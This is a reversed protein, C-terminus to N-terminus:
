ARQEERLVDAGTAEMDEDDSDLDRMVDKNRDRGMLQWIESRMSEQLGYDGGRRGRRGDRSDDSGSDSEETSSPQRRRAKPLASSSSHRQELKPRKPASREDLDPKRKPAAASLATSSGPRVASATSTGAVSKGNSSNTRSPGNPRAPASGAAPSDGLRKRRMDAEIEEITRTDRKEANLRVFKTPDFGAKLRDKASASPTKSTPATPPRSSSSASSRPNLKSSSGNSTIGNASPRPSLTGSPKPSVREDKSVGKQMRALLMSGSLEEDDDKFM